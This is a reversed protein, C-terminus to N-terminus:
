YLPLRGFEDIGKSTTITIAFSIDPLNQEDFEFWFCCSKGPDIQYRNFSQFTVDGTYPFQRKLAPYHNLSERDFGNGTPSGNEPIADSIMTVSFDKEAETKDMVYMVELNGDLWDPVTLRFGSYFKGNNEFLNNKIRLCQIAAKGNADKQFQVPVFKPFNEQLFKTREEPVMNILRELGNLQEVPPTAEHSTVFQAPKKLLCLDSEGETGGDSICAVEEPGALIWRVAMTPFPLDSAGVIKMTAMNFLTVKRFTGIWLLDSNYPDACLSYAINSNLDTSINIPTWNEGPSKCIAACRSPMLAVAFSSNLSLVDENLNWSSIYSQFPLSLKWKQGPLDLHYIAYDAAAWINTNDTTKISFISGIPAKQSFEKQSEFLSVGSMLGTFKETRTDLWGFAGSERFGFGILLQDGVLRLSKIAPTPFGDKEDFTRPSAGSKPIRVLGGGETGLWLDNEDSEIATIPYKISEPLDILEISSDKPFCHWLSTGQAVLLEDPNGFVATIKARFHISVGEQIPISMIASPSRNIIEPIILNQPRPHRVVGMGGNTGYTAVMLGNEFDILLNRANDATQGDGSKAIEELMKKGNNSEVPDFLLYYALTFKSPQDLLPELGKSLDRGYQREAPDVNGLLATILAFKQQKDLSPEIEKMLSEGRQRTAPETVQLWKLVLLFKSDVDNTGSLPSAALTTNTIQLSPPPFNTTVHARYMIAMQGDPLRQRSVNGSNFDDLWRKARAANTSNSSQTIKELIEKGHESEPPYLLLLSGLNLKSKEDLVPEVDKLLDRGRQREVPDDDYFLANGLMFKSHVDNTNLLIAQELSQIADHRMKEMQAHVSGSSFANTSFVSESIANSSYRSPTWFEDQGGALQNANAAYLSAEAAQAQEMTLLSTNTFALQITDVVTKELEDGPPKTFRFIQAGGGVKQIRLAVSVEDQTSYIWQYGGDLIWVAPKLRVQNTSERTLGENQLEFESFIPAISEREVVGFGEGLFHKEILARLPVSLDPRTSSLSTDIFKGLAIFRRPQSQPNFTKLFSSIAPIIASPNAPDYQFLQLDLVVSSQVDIVKVWVQTNTGAQVVSGSVLWDCSLFHGFKQIADPSIFGAEALNLENWVANIREREVLQFQNENSLKVSLLDPVLSGIQQLPENGSPAFFPVIALRIPANTQASLCFTFFALVLLSLRKKM